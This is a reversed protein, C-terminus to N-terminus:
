VHNIGNKGKWGNELKQQQFISPQIHFVFSSRLINLKRL